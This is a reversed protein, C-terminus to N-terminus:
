DPIRGADKKAEDASDIPHNRSGSGSDGWLNQQRPMSEIVGKFALRPEVKPINEAIAHKDCSDCISCIIYILSSKGACPEWDLKNFRLTMSTHRVTESPM